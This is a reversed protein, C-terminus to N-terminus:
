YGYGILFKLKEAEDALKTLAKAADSDNLSNNDEKSIQGLFTIIEPLKNIAEKNKSAEKYKPDVKM